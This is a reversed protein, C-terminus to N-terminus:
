RMVRELRRFLAESWSTFARLRNRRKWEERKDLQLLNTVEFTFHGRFCREFNQDIVISRHFMVKVRQRTATGFSRRGVSRAGGRGNM